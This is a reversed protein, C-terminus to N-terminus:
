TIGQHSLGYLRTAVERARGKFTSAEKRKLILVNDTPDLDRIVQDGFAAEILTASRSRKFYSLILVGEDKLVRLLSNIAKLPDCNQLVTLCLILDFSKPRFPLSEVDGLVFDVDHAVLRKKAKRLMGRSFDAGVIFRGKDRLRETVLGTGCGADLMAGNAFSSPAKLRSIAEYKRIQESGYLDDYFASTVDYVQRLKAKKFAVLSLVNSLSIM